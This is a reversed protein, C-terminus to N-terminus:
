TLVFDLMEPNRLMEFTGPKKKRRTRKARRAVQGVLRKLAAPLSHEDNM